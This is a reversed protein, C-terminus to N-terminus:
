DESLTDRLRANDAVLDENRKRLDINEQAVRQHNDILERLVKVSAELAMRDSRNCKWERVLEDFNVVADEVSMSPADMLIKGPIEITPGQGM